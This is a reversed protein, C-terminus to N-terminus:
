SRFQRRAAAAEEKTVTNSDNRTYRRKFAYAAAPHQSWRPEFGGRALWNNLETRLERLRDSEARTRAAGYLVLREQEALNAEPDM